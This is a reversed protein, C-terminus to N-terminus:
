ISAISIYWTWIPDGWLLIVWGAIALYPGFPIPKARDRGLAILLGAGIVGALSSLIVILPLAQWGLWAGLMALLKFDGYGLGEKGTILKFAKYVLWFALYGACAGIFASEFLVFVGFYNVMLGLWLFPLTIDDPLTLVDFDIVALAILAWTLLCGLLGAVTLGLVHIVIVTLIATALEVAPYRVPISTSCRACRGKLLLYSIVPVNQWPKIETHCSPCHSGPFVLNFPEQEDGPELELIERAQTTWERELMVPMRLIVVNLFSGILLGFISAIALVPLPFQGQLLALYDFM